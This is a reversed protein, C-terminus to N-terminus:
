SVRMLDFDDDWTNGCGEVMCEFHLGDDDLTYYVKVRTSKCKNCTITFGYTMM